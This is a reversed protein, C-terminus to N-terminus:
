NIHIIASDWKAAETEPDKYQEHPWPKSPYKILVSDPWFAQQSLPGYVGMDSQQFDLKLFFMPQLKFRKLRPTASNWLTSTGM